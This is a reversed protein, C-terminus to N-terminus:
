VRLTFASGAAGVAPVIVWGEEHVDGVPLTISFPRGAEPVQVILGPDIVPVPVVM